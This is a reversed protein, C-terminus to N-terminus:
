QVSSHFLFSQRGSYYQEQHYRNVTYLYSFNHGIFSLMHTAVLELRKNATGIFIYCKFFFHKYLM